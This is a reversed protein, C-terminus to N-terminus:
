VPDFRWAKGWRVIRGATPPSFHSGFVITKGDAFPKFFAQRTRSAQQKDADNRTLREPFALQVPSHVLDGTIVGAHNRSRLEVSYHGPTHGPTALLRVGRGVAYGEPEIFDALGAEVIPVITDPFQSSESQGDQWSKRAHEYEARSFLYRANRFTPVWKGDQALTNWGVHDYHMHTCMVVDIDDPSVGLRALNNLFGPGLNSFAPAPLKRNAGFCTDVLITKDPTRVLFTHFSMRIQGTATAYAPRMWPVALVDASTLNLYMNEPASLFEDIEVIRNVVIEGVRWENQSKRSVKGLHRL